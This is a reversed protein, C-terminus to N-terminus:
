IHILSLRLPLSTVSVPHAGSRRAIPITRVLATQSAPSTKIDVHGGRHKGGGHHGHGHGGGPLDVPPDPVPPGQPLPLPLPLQALASGGGFGLLGLGVVIATASLVAKRWGGFGSM